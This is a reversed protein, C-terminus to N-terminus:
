FVGEYSLTLAGIHVRGGQVAQPLAIEILVALSQQVLVKEPFTKQHYVLTRDNIGKVQEVM